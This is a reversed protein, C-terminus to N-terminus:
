FTSPQVIFLQELIISRHPAKLFSISFVLAPILCIPDRKLILNQKGM